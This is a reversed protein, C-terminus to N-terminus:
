KTGNFMAVIYPYEIKAILCSTTNANNEEDPKYNKLFERKSKLGACMHSNQGSLSISLEKANRDTEPYYGKPYSNFFKYFEKINFSEKAYYLESILFAVNKSSKDVVEPFMDSPYAEVKYEKKIDIKRQDSAYGEAFKLKGIDIGNNDKDCALKKMREYFVEISEEVKKNLQETEQMYWELIEEENLDPAGDKDAYLDYLEKSEKKISSISVSTSPVYPMIVYFPKRTKNDFGLFKRVHEIPLRKLSWFCIGESSDDEAKKVIRLTTGDMLKNHKIDFIKTMLITDLSQDLYKGIKSFIVKELDGNKGMEYLSKEKLGIEKLHTKELQVTSIKRCVSYITSGDASKLDIVYVPNDLMKNSKKKKKINAIRRNWLKYREPESNIQSMENLSVGYREEIKQNLIESFRDLREKWEKEKIFPEMKEDLVNQPLDKNNLLFDRKGGLNDRERNSDGNYLWFGSKRFLYMFITEDLIWPKIDDKNKRKNYNRECVLFLDFMKIKEKFVNKNTQTSDLCIGMIHEGFRRFADETEGVYVKKAIPNFIIYIGKRAIPKEAILKELVGKNEM